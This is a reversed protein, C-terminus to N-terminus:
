IIITIAIAAALGSLLERILNYDFTVYTKVRYGIEYALPWLIALLIGGLPLGILFGKVAMWTRCYNIDGREFGLRDSIWNVVPSLTRPRGMGDAPDDGWQLAPGTATQMGLYSVVFSVLAIVSSYEPLYKGWAMEAASAIVMCFIAEPVWTFNIKWKKFLMIEKQFVHSGPLSGGSIASLVMMPISLIFFSIMPIGDATM